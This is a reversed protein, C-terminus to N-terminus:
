FIAFMTMYRLMFLGVWESWIFGANYSYNMINNDSIVLGMRELQMRIKELETIWDAPDKKWDTLSSNTFKKKSKMKNSSTQPDFRRNLSNWAFNAGGDPIDKTVSKEIIGFVIDGHCAM